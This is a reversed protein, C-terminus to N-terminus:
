ALKFVTEVDKPNRAYAETLSKATDIGDVSNKLNVFFKTPPPNYGLNWDIETGDPGFILISPTSFIKLKRM